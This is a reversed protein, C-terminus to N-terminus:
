GTDPFRMPLFQSIASTVISKSLVWKRRNRNGVIPLRTRSVRVPRRSWDFGEDLEQEPQGLQLQGGAGALVTAVRPFGPPFGTDPPFDPTPPSIRHGPPFGTDPPFDPTPPSIRHRPPFGTDPPFDPTPPSIRHRPPFGTDPPSIRHRPPFDPTPPSIRHRNMM